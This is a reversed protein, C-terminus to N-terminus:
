RTLEAFTYSKLRVENDGDEDEGDEKVLFAGMSDKAVWSTSSGESTTIHFIHCLFSQGAATISEQGAEDVRLTEISFDTTDLIRVTRNRMDGRNKLLYDEFGTATTDYLDDPIRLEGQGDSGDGFLSIIGLAEGAYPIMSVVTSAALDVVAADEQEQRTLVERASCWLEKNHREGVLHYSEGAVTIRHDFELIGASDVIVEGTSSLEFSWFWGSLKIGLSTQVSITDDPGRTRTVTIDGVDDGEMLLDYSSVVQDGAMALASSLLCQTFFFLGVVFPSWLLRNGRLNYSITHSQNSDNQM